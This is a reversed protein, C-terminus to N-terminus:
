TSKALHTDILLAVEKADSMALNHDGGSVIHLKAHPLLAALRQGVSVPSIPDADGWLLLSPVKIKHFQPTLDEDYESLWRPFSPNAALILPRWDQAGFSELDMGGSTVALVLHTVLDLKELTAQIAMVCGMSQAILAVPQDIEAVVLDVLDHISNVKPDLPTSGLGPWKLYVKEAPYTLLNAVPLWFRTNGSAGPLFLLKSPM